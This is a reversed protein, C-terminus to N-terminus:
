KGFYSSYIQEYKGNDKIKQLSDSILTVLETNGKKLLHGYYEAEFSEDSVYKLKADPNAKIYEMVVVNDAVVADVDGISMSQIAFPINEYPMVGEYTKGLAERVAIDGTTGQQVGIKKGNLDALSAIDSAEPVLILQTAEFYPDAFDYKEKREDTITVASAAIDLQGNNVSEFLGEWGVHTFTVEFGGAEAVAKMVDVDFGAIDGNPETWEFPKYAADMGVKYVKKGENNDSQAPTSAGPDNNAPTDTNDAGGCAVLLGVSLVMTLVFLMKTWKKM